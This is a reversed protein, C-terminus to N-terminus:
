ASHTVKLSIKVTSYNARASQMFTGNTDVPDAAASVVYVKNNSFDVHWTFYMCDNNELRLKYKNATEASTDTDVAITRGVINDDSEAGTATGDASQHAERLMQAIWSGASEDGITSGADTAAATSLPTAAATRADDVSKSTFNQAVWSGFFAVGAADKMIKREDKGTLSLTSGAVTAATSESRQTGDIYALTCNSLATAFMADLVSDDTSGTAYAVNDQGDTVIEYEYAAFAANLDLSTEYQLHFAKGAEPDQNQALNDGTAAFEAECVFSQAM